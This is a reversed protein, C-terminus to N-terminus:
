GIDQTRYGQIMYRRRTSQIRRSQTRHMRRYTRYRLIMYREREAQIRRSQTWQMRKHIRM